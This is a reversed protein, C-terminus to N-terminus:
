ETLDVVEIGKPPSYVFESDKIGSNIKVKDFLFSVWNDNMDHYELKKVLFTKKDIWLTLKTIFLNEKKPTLVLKHYSERGIKEEKDLQPCYDARFNYLYENPKFITKSEKLKHITVQKNKESFLWLLKGDTVISQSPIDIRFKDPNKIYMQGRVKNETSFVESKTTQTFRMSIDILSKYKKEIKLALDESTVAPVCATLLLLFGLTLVIKKM